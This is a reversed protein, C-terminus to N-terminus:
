KEVIIISLTLAATVPSHHRNQLEMAAVGESEKIGWPRDRPCPLTTMLMSPLFRTKSLMKMSLSQHVDFPLLDIELVVGANRLCYPTESIEEPALILLPLVRREAVPRRVLDIM